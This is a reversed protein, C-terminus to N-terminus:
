RSTVGAEHGASVIIDMGAERHRRVHKPRDVMGIM